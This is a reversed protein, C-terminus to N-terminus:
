LQVDQNAIPKCIPPLAGKDNGAFV